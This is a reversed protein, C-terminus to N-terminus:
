RNESGPLPQELPLWVKFMSGRGVQSAVEIRGGHLEALWCAISLGLGTGSGNADLTMPSGDIKVSSETRYQDYLKSREVKNFEGKIEIRRNLARTEPAANSAIPRSEGYWRVVFREAPLKEFKVLHTLAAEARRKSLDLNYAESGM